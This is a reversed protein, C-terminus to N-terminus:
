KQSLISFAFKKKSFAMLLACRSMYKRMCAEQRVGFLVATDTATICILGNDKQIAKFCADIYMNPTGFPDISIIQPRESSSTIDRIISNLLYSSEYQTIKYKSTPIENIKLNKNILDVAIPNIDNIYVKKINSCEKLMRISGIGSAAMTDIITLSTQHYIRNYASVALNSIDRNIEMKQNYFVNMSKSPISNTDELYVFFTASGESLQELKNKEIHLNVERM